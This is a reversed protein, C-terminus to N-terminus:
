EIMFFKKIIWAGVDFEGNAHAQNYNDPQAHHNNHLGEGLLYLNIWKNNQSHDPTEYNRYAGPITLHNFCNTLAGHFLNWGIPAMIYFLSFKWGGVLLASIFIMTWIKYYHTNIFMVTSDKYLDRPITKVGKVDTWWSMPMIAWTGFIAKWKSELPSHVDRATDSYTHHHRHHISWTFPSGVGGLVTIWALFNHRWPGTKFTHHSFYRHLGIGNTFMWLSRFYLYSFLWYLYEHSYITYAISGIFGTVGLAWLVSYKIIPSNKQLSHKLSSVM